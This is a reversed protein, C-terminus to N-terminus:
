SGRAAQQESSTSSNCNCLGDAESIGVRFSTNDCSSAMSHQWFKDCILAM